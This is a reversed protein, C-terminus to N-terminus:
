SVATVVVVVQVQVKNHDDKEVQITAVDQYNDKGLVSQIIILHTNGEVSEVVRLYDVQNDNNLDLNSIQTKPDNLKQEFDDLDKADGFLSAIARLDLNDSIESSTATVTTHDQAVVSFTFFVSLLISSIITTRM